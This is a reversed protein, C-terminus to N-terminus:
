FSNAMEDFEDDAIPPLQEAPVAPRLTEGRHFYEYVVTEFSKCTSPGRKTDPGYGRNFAAKTAAVVESESAGASADM